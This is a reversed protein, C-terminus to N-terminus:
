TPQTLVYNGAATGTLTSTSTVVIGDAVDVSAFTGTGNLTVDDSGVVGNLTGTIVAADTNNYPKNSAAANDVTLTKPSVIIGRVVDTAPNYTADGSQSATVSASGVGVITLISGSVAVVATNSSTYTVTLGSSATANLTLPSDGYTVGPLVGFSLTQDVGTAATVQGDPTVFSPNGSGASMMDVSGVFQGLSAGTLRIYITTSALTSGTPNLNLRAAYGSNPLLSIEYGAPASVSVSTWLDSGSVTFTQAASPTGLTTSFNTLNQNYFVSPAVLMTSTVAVNDISIKPRSGTTSGTGGSNHCYFRLKVQSQNSIASPLTVSVSASGAVNNQAVYPLNTGTIETWNNNDITYYVRLTSIRNGTSNFITAADFSLTGATRMSMNLNLDVGIAATNDTGGTTLMVLKTSSALDYGAATGTGVVVLSTTATTLRGASPISGTANTANGNWEAPYGAWGTFSQSYDSTSM